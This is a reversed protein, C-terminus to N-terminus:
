YKKPIHVQLNTGKGLKSKLKIKGGHSKVIKDAIFLGLGTGHTGKSSYFLSFASNTTEQDMGIGNDIVFFKISKALEEFGVTIKKQKKDTCAKCADIANEILNTVLSRIATTDAMLHGPGTDFKRYIKIQFKNAQFDLKDCISTLIDKFAFKELTPERDKTYYLINYILSRIRDISRLTTEWGTNVRKQDGSKIGTNVMYIGGDMNNLLGKIDHSISGILLGISSLKDQLERIPTIDASMEIVNIINNNVDRIPAATVLIYRQKNDQSKVVEEQSHIKGDRFTQRVICPDCEKNRHKLIKYCKKGQSSGFAERHPRNAQIINMDRDQISIYCPVEEFLLRYRELNEKHEKQLNKVSTIDTSMEMVAIINGTNDYIPTTYVVVFIDQGDLTQVQEESRHKQGDQFTQEVPCIDCKETRKKYVEYCHKGIGKGFSSEFAKNEEIIIYNHDQISLFCPLEKFYKKYSHRM